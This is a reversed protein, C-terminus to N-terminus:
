SKGIFEFGKDIGVPFTRFNELSVNFNGFIRLNQFFQLPWQGEQGWAKASDLCATVICLKLADM